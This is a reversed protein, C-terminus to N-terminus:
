MITWESSIRFKRPQRHYHSKTSMHNDSTNHTDTYYSKNVPLYKEGCKRMWRHVTARPVPWLQNHVPLLELVHQRSVIFIDVLDKCADVSMIKSTTIFISLATKLGSAELFCNKRNYHGRSDMSFGKFNNTKFDRFWDDITSAAVDVISKKELDLATEKRIYDATFTKFIDSRIDEWSDIESQNSASLINNVAELERSLKAVIHHHMLTAISICQKNLRILQANSMEVYELKSDNLDKTEVEEEEKEVASISGDANVRFLRDVIQKEKHEEDHEKFHDSPVLLYKSNSCNFISNMLEEPLNSYMEIREGLEKQRKRFYKSRSYEDSVGGQLVRRRRVSFLLLRLLRNAKRQQM